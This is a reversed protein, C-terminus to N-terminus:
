DDASRFHENYAEGSPHSRARPRLNQLMANSQDPLLTDSYQSWRKSDPGYIVGIPGSSGVPSCVNQWGTARM